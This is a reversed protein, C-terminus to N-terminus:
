GDQAESAEVRGRLQRFYEDVKNIEVSTIRKLMIPTLQDKALDSLSIGYLIAVIRKRAGLFMGLELWVYPRESTLPTFLVLLETANEAESIIVEEFDDGFEIRDHDLFTEAGCAKVHAELQKAVWLDPSGHSIFVKPRKSPQAM